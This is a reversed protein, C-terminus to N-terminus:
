LHKTVPTKKNFQMWFYGSLIVLIIAVNAKVIQM